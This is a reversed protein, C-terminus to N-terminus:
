NSDTGPLLEPPKDRICRGAVFAQILLGRKIGVELKELEEAIVEEVEAQRALIDDQPNPLFLAIALGSLIIVAVAWERWDLRLPLYQAAKVRGAVRVAQQFQREAIEPSEVPM